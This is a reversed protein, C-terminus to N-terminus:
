LGHPQLSNSVVSRSVLLSENLSPPCSPLLLHSGGGESTVM